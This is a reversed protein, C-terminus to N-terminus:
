WLGHGASGGPRWRGSGGAGGSHRTGGAAPRVRPRPRAAAQQHLIYLGGAPDPVNWARAQVPHLCRLAAAHLLGYARGACRMSLRHAVLELTWKGSAEDFLAVCDLDGGAASPDELQGHFYLPEQECPGMQPLLYFQAARPRRPKPLPQPACAPAPLACPAGSRSLALPARQQQV